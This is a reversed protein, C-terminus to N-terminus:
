SIICHKCLQTVDARYKSKINDARKNLREMFLKSFWPFLEDLYEKDAIHLTDKMADKIINICLPKSKDLFRLGRAWLRTKVFSQPPSM